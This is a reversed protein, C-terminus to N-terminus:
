ALARAALPLKGGSWSGGLSRRQRRGVCRRRSYSVFRLALSAARVRARARIARPLELRGPRVLLCANSARRAANLDSRLGGRGLLSQRTVWDVVHTRSPARNNDRGPRTGLEGSLPARLVVDPPVISPLPKAESATTAAIKTIPGEGADACGQIGFSAGKGHFMIAACPLELAVEYTRHKTSTPDSLGYQYWSFM